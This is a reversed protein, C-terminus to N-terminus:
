KRGVVVRKIRGGMGMLWMAGGMVAKMAFRKAGMGRGEMVSSVGKLLKERQEALIRDVVLGQYFFWFSDNILSFRLYLM